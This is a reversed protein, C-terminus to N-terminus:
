EDDDVESMRKKANKWRKVMKCSWYFYNYIESLSNFVGGNNVLNMVPVVSNEDTGFLVGMEICYETFVDAAHTVYEFASAPDMKEICATDFCLMYKRTKRNFLIEILPEGYKDCELQVYSVTSPDNYYEDNMEVLADYLEGASLISETPCSPAYKRFNVDNKGCDGDYFWYEIIDCEDNMAVALTNITIDIFSYSPVDEIAIGYKELVNCLGDLNRKAVILKEIQAVFRKKELM